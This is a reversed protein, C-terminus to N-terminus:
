SEIIMVLACVKAVKILTRSEDCPGQRGLAIIWGSVLENKM